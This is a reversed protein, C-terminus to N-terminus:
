EVLKRFTEGIIPFRDLLERVFAFAVGAVSIFYAWSAIHMVHGLLAAVGDRTLLAVAFLTIAVGPLTNTFPIVPPIPLALAVSSSIMALCAVVRGPGVVLPTARPKLYRELRGVYSRGKEGITHVMKGKLKVRETVAPLRTRGPLLIRLTLAIIAAGFATSIGPLPMPFLFPLCLFVITLPAGDEGFIDDLTRLSVDQDPPIGALLEFRQSLM